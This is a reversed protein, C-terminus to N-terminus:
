EITRVLYARPNEWTAVNLLQLCVYYLDNLCALCVINGIKEDIFIQLECVRNYHFRVEEWLSGNVVQILFFFTCYRQCRDINEGKRSFIRTKYQNKWVNFHGHYLYHHNVFWYFELHIDVIREHVRGMYVNSHKNSSCRLNAGLSDIRHQLGLFRNELQLSEVSLNERFSIFVMVDHAWIFRLAISCVICRSYTETSVLGAFSRLTRSLSSRPSRSVNKFNRAM